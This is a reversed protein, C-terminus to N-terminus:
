YLLFRLISYIHNIGDGICDFSIYFFILVAPTEAQFIHHCIRATLMTFFNAAPCTYGYHHVEIFNFISIGRNMCYDLLMTLIRLINSKESLTTTTVPLVLPIPRAM